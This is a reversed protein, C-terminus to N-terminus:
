MQTILKVYTPSTNLSHAFTWGERLIMTPRRSSFTLAALTLSTLRSTPTRYRMANITALGVGVQATKLGLAPGWDTATPSRQRMGNWWSRIVSEPDYARPQDAPSRGVM